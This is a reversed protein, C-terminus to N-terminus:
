KVPNLMRPLQSTVSSSRTLQELIKKKEEESLSNFQNIINSNSDLQNNKNGIELIKLQDEAKNITNAAKYYDSEGKKDLTYKTDNISNNGTLYNNLYDGISAIKKNNFDQLKNQQDALKQNNGQIVNRYEALRGKNNASSLALSKSRLDGQANLVNETVGSAYRAIDGPSAGASSLAQITSNAGAGLKQAEQDLLSLPTDRFQDDILATDELAPNSYGSQIGSFLAQNALQLANNSKKGKILSALDQKDKGYRTDLESRREGYKGRLYDTLEKINQDQETPQAGTATTAKDVLQNSAPSNLITGPPAYNDTAPPSVQQPDMITEYPNYASTEPKAPEFGTRDTFDKGTIHPIYTNLYEELQDDNWSNERALQIAKSKLQNAYDGGEIDFPYTDPTSANNKGANYDSSIINGPIGTTTNKLIASPDNFTTQGPKKEDEENLLGLQKLMERYNPWGKAAKPVSEKKMDMNEGSQLGFLFGIIPARAATNMENTEEAVLSKETTTPYYKKVKRVAEAYSIEGKDGLVDGVTLEGYEYKENDDYFSIAESLKVDKHKKLDITKQDSFVITGKPVVDTVESPKMDKHKKDAKVESIELTPLVLMEGEETQLKDAFMGGKGAYEPLFTRDKIYRNNADEQTLEYDQRAQGTSILGDLAGLLAGIGGGTSLGTIAGGITGMLPDPVGTQSGAYLANGAFGLINGLRGKAGSIINQNPDCPCNGQADRKCPCTDQM